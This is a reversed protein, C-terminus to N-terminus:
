DFFELPLIHRTEGRKASDAVVYKLRSGEYITSWFTPNMTYGFSDKIGLCLDDDEDRYVGYMM